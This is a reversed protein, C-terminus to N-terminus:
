RMPASGQGDLRTTVLGRSNTRPGGELMHKAIDRRRWVGIYRPEDDIPADRLRLSPEPLNFPHLTLDVHRFDGTEVDSNEGIDSHNSIL